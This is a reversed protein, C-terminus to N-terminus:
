GNVCAGTNSLNLIFNIAEQWGIPGYGLSQYIYHQKSTQLEPYPHSPSRIQVAINAAELMAIDNGSDGLAITTVQQQWLAQYLCKVVHLAKGKDCDGSLHIFRGGELVHAGLQQAQKIFHQKELPTGQWLVPEGFQRQQALEAKDLTLGTAQALEATTMQSFATFKNTFEAQLAQAIQQYQQRPQSFTILWYDGDSIASKPCDILEAKPLYIAAGNEIIFPGHLGLKQYLALVEVKTKSTTAIVPINLRKLQALTPLAANFSYSHHDLLTGDLDTFIIPLNRM